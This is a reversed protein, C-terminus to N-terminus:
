NTRLHLRIDSVRLAWSIALFSCSCSVLREAVTSVCSTEVTSSTPSPMARTVPRLLAMAPSSRSNLLESVPSVTKPRALVKVTVLDAGNQKTGDVGDLFAVLAAGSAANHIDGHATGHEAADDIREALGDVTQTVNDGRM